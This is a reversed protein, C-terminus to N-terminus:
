AYVCKYTWEGSRDAPTDLRFGGFSFYLFQHTPRHLKKMRELEVRRDVADNNRGNCTIILKKKLNDPCSIIMEKKRGSISTKFFVVLDILYCYRTQTFPSITTTM